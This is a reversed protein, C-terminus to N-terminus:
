QEDELNLSVLDPGCDMCDQARKVERPTMSCAVALFLLPLLILWRM